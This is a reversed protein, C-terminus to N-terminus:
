SAKEAQVPAWMRVEAGSEVWWACVWRAGAGENPLYFVEVNRALAEDHVARETQVDINVTVRSTAEPLDITISDQSIV